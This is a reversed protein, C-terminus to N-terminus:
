ESPAPEFSIPFAMIIPEREVVVSRLPKREGEM